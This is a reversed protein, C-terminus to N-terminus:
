LQYAIRARFVSRAALSQRTRGAPVTRACGSKRAGSGLLVLTALPPLTRMFVGRGVRQEGQVARHARLRRSTIPTMRYTTTAGSRAIAAPRGRARARAQSIPAQTVTSVHQQQQRPHLPEPPVTWARDQPARRKWLSAPDVNPAHRSGWARSYTAPRVPPARVEAQRRRTGGPHATTAIPRQLM